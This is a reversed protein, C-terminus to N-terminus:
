RKEGNVKRMIEVAEELTTAPTRGLGVTGNEWKWTYGRRLIRWDKKEGSSVWPASGYISATVGTKKNYWIRAPIVDIIKM